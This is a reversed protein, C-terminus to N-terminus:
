AASPHQAQARNLLERVEADSTQTFDMYWQGVASFSDPMNVCIVEGAEARLQDCTSAAAVPVAVIVREPQQQKVAQVAARMTSGTALGDDVLIVTRGSLSPAPRGGRYLQERRELETREREAVREIAERSINLARAVEENIVQVGGTALAGMALEEQGPVGLKRVVFIDLPADLRTAIEFAVPVGGRPLALVIVDPHRALRDLREALVRGADSRDQFLM